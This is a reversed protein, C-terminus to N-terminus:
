HRTLGTVDARPDVHMNPRDAQLFRRRGAQPRRAGRVMTAGEEGPPGTHPCEERQKVKPPTHPSVGRAAQRRLPTGMIIQPWGAESQM